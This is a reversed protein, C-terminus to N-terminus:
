MVFDGGGTCYMCFDIRVDSGLLLFHVFGGFWRVQIRVMCIFPCLHYYAVFSSSIVASGYTFYLRLQLSFTTDFFFARLFFVPWLIWEIIPNSIRMKEFLFFLGDMLEM